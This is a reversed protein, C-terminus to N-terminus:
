DGRSSTGSSTGSGVEHQEPTKLQSDLIQSPWCDSPSPYRAHPRSVNSAAANPQPFTQLDPFMLHDEPLQPATSNHDLQSPDSNWAPISRIREELESQLKKIQAELASNDERLENKEMSVYHSESLLAANDRKLCDVQALLDRLLRTADTLVCAKGNNQQASELINGLELFLVNLHDRKLKEREAKHIKKPVKGPNKKRPSLRCYPYRGVVTEGAVCGDNDSPVESVMNLNKYCGDGSKTEERYVYSIRETQNGLFSVTVEVLKVKSDPSTPKSRTYLSSSSSVSLSPQPFSPHIEYVRSQCPHRLPFLTAVPKTGRSPTHQAGLSKSAM